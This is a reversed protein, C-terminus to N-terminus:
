PKPPKSKDEIVAIGRSALFDAVDEPVKLHAGADYDIGDHRHPKLLKIPKM